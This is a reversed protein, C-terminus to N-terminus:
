STKLPFLFLGTIHPSNFNFYITPYCNESEFSSYIPWPIWSHVKYFKHFVAKFFQLSITRRPLGYWNLNKLPQRRCIKSLENKVIKVWINRLFTVWRYEANRSVMILKYGGGQFLLFITPKRIIKPSVSTM